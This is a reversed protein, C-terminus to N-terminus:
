FLSSFFDTYLCVCVKDVEPLKNVANSNTEETLKQGSFQDSFHIYDVYDAYKNLVASIKADLMASTAEGIESMIQFNAPINFKEGSKREPCYVSVDQLDKTIQSATKKTAIAFIFSDMDEKNM